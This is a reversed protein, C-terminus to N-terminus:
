RRRLSRAHAGRCVRRRCGSPSRARSACGPPPPARASPAILQDSGPCGRDDRGCVGGRRKAAAAGRPWTSAASCQVPARVMTGRAASRCTCARFTSRRSGGSPCHTGVCTCGAMASIPRRRQHPWTSKWSFATAIGRAAILRLVLVAHLTHMADTRNPGAAVQCRLSSWNCKYGLNVQLTGVMRRCIPPFDSAALLALAAHRRAVVGQSSLASVSWEAAGRRAAAASPKCDVVKPGRTRTM